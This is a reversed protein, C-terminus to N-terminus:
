VRALALTLMKAHKEARRSVGVSAVAEDSALIEFSSGDSTTRTDYHSPYSEATSFAVVVM